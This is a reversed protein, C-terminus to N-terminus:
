DVQNVHKVMLSPPFLSKLKLWTSNLKQISHFISPILVSPFVKGLLIKHFILPQIHKQKSKLNLIANSLDEANSNYSTEERCTLIGDWNPVSIRDQWFFTEWHISNCVSDHYKLFDILHIQFFNQTDFPKLPIEM